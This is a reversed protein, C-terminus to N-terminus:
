KFGHNRLFDLVIYGGGVLASWLLSALSKEIVAQRLKISQAEKEIALRVWRQEDESLCHHASQKTFTATVAEVIAQIMQEDTTRRRDVGPWPTSPENM